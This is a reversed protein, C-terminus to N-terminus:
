LVSYPKLWSPPSAFGVSNFTRAIEGVESNPMADVIAGDAYEYKDVYENPWLHKAITTKGTGSAGNIVGINWDSKEIPISGVFRETVNQMSMDFMSMISVVRFSSDLDATKVIDFDPM